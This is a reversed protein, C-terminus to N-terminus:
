KQWKEGDSPNFRETAIFLPTPMDSGVGLRPPPGIVDLKSSLRRGPMRERGM